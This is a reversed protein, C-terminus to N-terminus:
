DWQLKFKGEAKEFKLVLYYRCKEEVALLDTKMTPTMDLLIERNKNEVIVHLSGKSVDCDLNFTYGRSEKFKIVKKVYGDCSSFTAECKNGRKLSGVFVAARKVKLVMYGNIWLLYFLVPMSIFITVLAMFKINM